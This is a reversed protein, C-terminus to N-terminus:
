TGPSVGPRACRGFTASSDCDLWSTQSAPFYGVNGSSLGLHEALSRAQFDDLGALCGPHSQAYAIVAQEGIGLHNPPLADIVSSPIQVLTAWDLQRPDITDRRLLRGLYLLVTTDCVLARKSM